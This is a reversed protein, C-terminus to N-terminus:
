GWNGAAHSVSWSFCLLSFASNFRPIGSCDSDFLSWGGLWWTAAAARQAHGSHYQTGLKLQFENGQLEKHTRFQM